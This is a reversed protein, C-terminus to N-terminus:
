FVISNVFKIKVTVKLNLTTWVWAMKNKFDIDSLPPDSISRSHIQIDLLNQTSRSIWWEIESDNYTPDAEKRCQNWFYFPKPRFKEQPCNVPGKFRFRPGSRELGSQRVPQEYIMRHSEYRFSIQHRESQHTEKSNSGFEKQKRQVDQQTNTVM